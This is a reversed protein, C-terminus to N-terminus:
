KITVWQLDLVNNARHVVTVNKRSAWPIMQRHLPILHVEDHMIKVTRNIMTQREALNMEGELKDILADLEPIKADGYNSDGAGKGDRSHVIPKLTFIADTSNGGWGALFASTDRKQVKPFFNAKTMTEVRVDLGIKAWMGAVAVCIKEDNVYRDNPCHLTFAFGKPYGAEAMLKKAKAIDFPHRRDQEIPVGAAPGAALTIATPISLGRMVSSKLAEIDIAQYLALRVRKDKFPNKGKVDSYLLEDRAQDTGLYILRQEQGEWIKIDPDNRLRLVDQVSPDLVFDIEGSKLAAMRTAANSIPRYDITEVNGTFQREKIGWWDPNKTHQIKIGQEWIVLKFPGTGMANRTAFSEEKKIYDLPKVVGNKECWAKSMIMINSLTDLMVPNPVPTTFEVTYDDIKKAIGSQTSYLRFTVTSERARNFSFVVDAATFPTGDHFKVGQRLKFVWILPATNTWSVALAPVHKALSQRDRNVLYEYVLNNIGNNFTENQSHPDLTAADGQTSWRFNKATSTTAALTLILAALLARVFM